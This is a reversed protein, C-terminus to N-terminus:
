FIRLQYEVTSIKLQIGKTSKKLDNYPILKITESNVIHQKINNYIESISTETDTAEYEIKINKHGETSKLSVNYDKGLRISHGWLLLMDVDTNVIVELKERDERTVNM